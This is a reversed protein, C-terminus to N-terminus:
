SFNHRCALLDAVFNMCILHSMSNVGGFIQAINRTTHLIRGGLWRIGVSFSRKKKKEMGPPINHTEADMPHHLVCFMM